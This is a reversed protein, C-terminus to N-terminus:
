FKELALGVGDNYLKSIEAPTLARNWKGVEDISGTFPYGAQQAGIRFMEGVRPIGTIDVDLAPDGNDVILGVTTGDRYAVIHHWQDATIIANNTLFSFQNGFADYMMLTPRQESADDTFLYLSDDSNLIYDAGFVSGTRYVWLSITFDGIFRLLPHDPHDLWRDQDTYSFEASNGLLGATQGVTNNDTLHLGNGSSDLRVEGPGEDLKWYAVVDARLASMAAPM